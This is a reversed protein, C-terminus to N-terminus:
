KHVEKKVFFEKPMNAFANIDRAKKTAEEEFDQAKASERAQEELTKTVAHAAGDLKKARGKLFNLTENFIKEDSKEKAKHYAELVKERYITEMEKGDLEILDKLLPELGKMVNEEQLKEILKTQGNLKDKLELFQDTIKKKSEEADELAKDKTKIDTMAKEVDGQAKLVKKDLEELTKDKKTLQDELEQIQKALKETELMNDSENLIEIARCEKCAPTPTLSHEVVDYHIPNEEGYQRYRMSIAIPEHIEFRKRIVDRVKLHEPTHGYVEYTSIITGDTVKSELVTGYIHTSNYKPILPHEHRWVLHKRKSDEALRNLGKECVFDKTMSKATFIFRGDSENVSELVFDADFTGV